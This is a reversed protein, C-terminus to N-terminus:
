EDTLAIERRAMFGAILLNVRDDREVMAMHAAGPLSVHQADPLGAALEASLSPPTLVDEAGSIVLAPVDVQGLWERADFAACAEYALALAEPGADNVMRMGRSVTAADPEHWLARVLREAEAPFDARVRRMVQDPVPIRAGSNILILGAVEVEPRIALELAVAGGISHGVLVRPAPVALVAEQLADAMAAASGRPADTNAGHGPLTLVVSEEIRGAQRGWVMPAGGSGHIFVPRPASM